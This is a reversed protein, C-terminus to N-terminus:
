EEATFGPGKATKKAWFDSVKKAAAEKKTMVTEIARQQPAKAPNRKDAESKVLEASPPKIVFAPEDKKMTAGSDYAFDPSEANKQAWFNFNRASAIEAKTMKNADIEKLVVAPKVVTQTSEPANKSLVAITVKAAALVAAMKAQTETQSKSLKAEAAAKDDWFKRLDTKTVPM